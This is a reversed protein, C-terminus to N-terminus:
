SARGVDAAARGRVAARVADVVLQYAPDGVRSSRSAASLAVPSFTKAMIRRM